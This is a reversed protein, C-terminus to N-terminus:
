QKNDIYEVPVHGYNQKDKGVLTVYARTLKFFAAPDKAIRDLLATFTKAIPKSTNFRPEPNALFVNGANEGDLFITLCSPGGDVEAFALWKHESRYWKHESRYLEKTKNYDITWALKGNPLYQETFKTLDTVAVQRLLPKKVANNPAIATGLAFGNFKSYFDVFDNLRTGTCIESLKSVGKKDVQKELKNEIQVETADEHSTVNFKVKLFPRTTSFLDLFTRKTQIDTMTTSTVKTHRRVTLLKICYHCKNIQQKVM